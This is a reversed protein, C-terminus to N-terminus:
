YRRGCTPWHSWSHDIKWYAHAAKAQAWLNWGHGYLDRERRGMQFLGWYKNDPYGAWVNFTQGTECEAIKWAVYGNYCAKKTGGCWYLNTAYRLQTKTRKDISSPAGASFLLAASLILIGTLLIKTTLKRHM